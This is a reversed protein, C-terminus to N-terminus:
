LRRYLADLSHIDRARKLERRGAVSYARKRAATKMKRYHHGFLPAGGIVEGSGFEEKYLKRVDPDIMADRYSMGTEDVVNKLFNIWLSKEATKKASIQMKRYHNGLIPAGGYGQMHNQSDLIQRVRNQYM